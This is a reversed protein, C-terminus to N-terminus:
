LTEQQKRTKGHNIDGQNLIYTKYYCAGCDEDEFDNDPDVDNDNIHGAIIVTIFLAFMILTFIATM